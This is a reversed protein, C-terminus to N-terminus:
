RRCTSVRRGISTADLVSMVTAPPMQGVSLSQFHRMRAEICGCDGLECGLWYRGLRQAEQYTSGGGGFPDLVIDGPETSLAIARAPIMPKLENVGPRTKWGRHRCPSTDTWFDTLNVGLPNMKDRHGGYDKIEKGCHRCTEIPIRVRNFTRPDGKSFYLLAYHAPYLRRGRPFTGKMTLAIWHRFRMGYTELYAAFHYAWRPISYIFLSGGPSLIRVCENIWQFSWGLYDEEAKADDQSTFGNSYEKGLNFPPDAFVAHVSESRLTPLFDLCDMQFLAGHTTTLRPMFEKNKRKRGREVVHHSVSVSEM